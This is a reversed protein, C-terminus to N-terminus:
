GASQGQDGREAASGPEGHADRHWRQLMEDAMPPLPKDGPWGRRGYGRPGYGHGDGWDRHGGGWIVRRLIGFVIFLFILGFFLGFFPFGFGFGWGYAPYAVATGSAAVGASLGVNYGFVGAVFAIVVTIMLGFLAFGRM